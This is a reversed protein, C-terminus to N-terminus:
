TIYQSPTRHNDYGNATLDGRTLCGDQHLLNNKNDCMVAKSCNTWPAYKGCGSCGKRLYTTLYLQVIHYSKGCAEKQQLKRYCMDHAYCCRCFSNTFLMRFFSGRTATQAVSIAPKWQWAMLFLFFELLDFGNLLYLGTDPFCFFFFIRLGECLNLDTCNEYARYQFFHNVLFHISSQITGMRISM